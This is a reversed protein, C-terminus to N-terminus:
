WGEFSIHLYSMNYMRHCIIGEIMSFKHFIKFCKNSISHFLSESLLLHYIKKLSKGRYLFYCLQLRNINLKFIPFMIEYICSLLAKM